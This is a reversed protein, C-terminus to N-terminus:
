SVILNEMIAPYFNISECPPYFFFTKLFFFERCFRSPPLVKEAKLLPWFNVDFNQFISSVFFIRWILFYQHHLVIFSTKREWFYIFNPVNLRRIFDIKNWFIEFNQHQNKAKNWTNEFNKHQNKFKVLTPFLAEM